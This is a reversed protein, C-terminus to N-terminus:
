FFTGITFTLNGSKSSILSSDFDEANSLSYPTYASDFTNASYAADIFFKPSRYGLGGSVILKSRDVGDNVNIPDGMYNLGGRLRFSSKRLELGGKINVVNKYYNSIANTQEDAWQSLDKNKIGMGRYGVYEAQVSLMGIKKPLMYSAGVNARLPSSVKYNFDGPLSEITSFDTEFTNPLQNIQVSSYLTEKAGLVTPTTVNVGININRSAKFIAGLSLNAGFGSVILDDTIAFEEFIEGQPFNEYHYTVMNYNLTQLGLSAGLYTKDGLNAAYSLNLQGLNGSESVSGQQNVPFSPEGVVYGDEFPNILYAQYYMSERTDTYGTIPDFENDLDTPTAGSSNAEEAFADMMSSRQNAGSYSHENHFNVLTNYSIGFNSRKIKGNRGPKSFVVSAQGLGFNSSKNSSTNGLYTSTTTLNRFVPSISFESRNYFGLGAPNVISSSADGGLATFAGGMGLSRASGYNSYQSFRFADEGYFHGAVDQAQVLAVSSLFATFSLILKKM